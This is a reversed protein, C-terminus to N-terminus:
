LRNLLRYKRFRYAIKGRYVSFGVYFIHYLIDIDNDVVNFFTGLVNKRASSRPVLSVVSWYNNEVYSGGTFTGLM